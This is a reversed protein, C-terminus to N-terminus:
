GENPSTCSVCTTGKFHGLRFDQYSLDISMAEHYSKRLYTQMMSSTFQIPTINGMSKKHPYEDTLISGSQLYM